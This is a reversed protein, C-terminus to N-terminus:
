HVGDYVFDALGAALVDIIQEAIPSTPRVDWGRDFNAVTARDSIRQVWVKSIRSEALEHEPDIAHEPFVLANFRHEAITGKVWAGGASTRRQVKTIKLTDLLDLAAENLPWDLGGRNTQKDNTGNM